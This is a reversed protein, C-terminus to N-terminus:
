ESVQEQKGPFLTNEPVPIMLAKELGLEPSLGAIQRMVNKSYAMHLNHNHDIHLCHPSFVM